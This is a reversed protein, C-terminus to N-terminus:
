NFQEFHLWSQLYSISLDQLAELIENSNLSSRRPVGEALNRGHKSRKWKM